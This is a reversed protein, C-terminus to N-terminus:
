VNTFVSNTYWAGKDKLKLPGILTEFLSYDLHSIRVRYHIGTCKGNCISKRSRVTCHFGLGILIIQLQESMKKSSTTLVLKSVEGDCDYYARIFNCIIERSSKLIVSPIEKERAGAFHVGNLRLVDIVSRSNLGWDITESSPLKWEIGFVNRTVRQLDELIMPNAVSMGLRGNKSACLTMTGDGTLYGLFRAFEPTMKDPITIPSRNKSENSDDFKVISNDSPSIEHNSMVIVFSGVELDRLKVYTPLGNIYTLVRHDPSGTLALGNELRISIAQEKDGIKFMAVPELMGVSTLIKLPIKQKVIDNIQCLGNETYIWSNGSVCKGGNTPVSIVARKLELAKKITELQYERPTFNILSIDDSPTPSTYAQKVAYSYEGRDLFDTVVSLLGTPFRNGFHFKYYGDWIDKPHIFRREAEPLTLQKQAILWNKYKPFFYRNPEQIRLCLRIQDALGVIETFFNTSVPLCVFRVAPSNQEL